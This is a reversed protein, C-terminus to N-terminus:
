GGDGPKTNIEYLMRLGELTLNPNIKQISETEKAILNVLGGTAVVVPNGDIEKKMKKIIGDVMGAFGFIIGAQISSPTNKGIVSNPHKLEVRPLKSTRQYLADTSISIGPAIVGGMYEGKSSIACFTTATGFDVIILPVGYLHIAAIANVIRDAGVEKPNEYLIRIPTNIGPQVIFPEIGFFKVSMENIITVLPPVVSSIAIGKIDIIDIKSIKFLSNILIGYEDVTQDRKTTIRWNEKLEDKEFIGLVTNTNGIDIVLLM